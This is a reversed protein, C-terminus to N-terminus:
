GCLLCPAMVCRGKFPCQSAMIQDSVPHCSVQLCVGAAREHKRCQLESVPALAFEWNYTWSLGASGLVTSVNGFYVMGAGKKSSSGEVTAGASPGLAATPAPASNNVSEQVVAASTFISRCGVSTSLVLNCWCQLLCHM